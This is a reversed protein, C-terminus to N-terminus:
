IEQGYEIWFHGLDRVKGDQTKKTGGLSWSSNYVM